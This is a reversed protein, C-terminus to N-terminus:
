TRHGQRSAPTTNGMGDKLHFQSYRQRAQQQVLFELAMLIALAFTSLQFVYSYGSRPLVGNGLTVCLFGVM